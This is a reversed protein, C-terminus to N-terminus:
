SDNDKKQPVKYRLENMQKLKQKSQDIFETDPYFRVISTYLREALDWSNKNFAKEARRFIHLAEYKRQQEDRFKRYDKDGQLQQLKGSIFLDWHSGKFQEHLASYEEIAQDYKHEVFFKNAKKFKTQVYKAINNKIEQAEKAEETNPYNSIIIGSLKEANFFKKYQYFEKAQYLMKKINAKEKNSKIYTIVEPKKSCEHLLTRAETTSESNNYIALFSRLQRMANLYKAEDFVKKIDNFKVRIEKERAILEANEILATEMIATLEDVPTLRAYFDIKEGKYNLVLLASSKLDSLFPSWVTSNFYKSKVNQSVFKDSLSAIQEDKLFDQWENEQKDPYVFFIIPSATLVAKNLVDSFPLKRDFPMFILVSVAISLFLITIILYKIKKM